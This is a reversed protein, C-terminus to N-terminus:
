KGSPKINNDQQCYDICDCCPTAHAIRGSDNLRTVNTEILPAIVVNSIDGSDHNINSPRIMHEITPQAVKEASVSACLTESSVAQSAMCIM